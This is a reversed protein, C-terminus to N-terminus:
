LFNNQMVETKLNFFKDNCVLINLDLKGTQEYQNNAEIISKMYEEILSSAKLKVPLNDVAMKYDDIVRQTIRLSYREKLFQKDKM